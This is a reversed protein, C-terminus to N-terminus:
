LNLLSMAINANLLEKHCCPVAIILDSQVKIGLALAMDTATDCAHLSM